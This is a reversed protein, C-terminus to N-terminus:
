NGGKTILVESLIPAKGLYEENVLDEGSYDHISTGRFCRVVNEKWDPGFVFEIATIPDRPVSVAFGEFKARISPFWKEKDFIGICTNVHNESTKCTWIDIKIKGELVVYPYEEKFFNIRYGKLYFFQLLRYIEHEEVLIDVDDDWPIFGGHRFCGLLTGGVICYDINLEGFIRDINQLEIKAKDLDMKQSGDAFKIM